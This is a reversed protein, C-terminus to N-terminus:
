EIEFFKFEIDDDVHGELFGLLKDIILKPNNADYQDIIVNGMENGTYKSYMVLNGAKKEKHISELLMKEGDTIRLLHIVVSLQEELSEEGAVEEILDFLEEETYGHALAERMKESLQFVEPRMMVGEELKGVAALAADEVEQATARMDMVMRDLENAIRVHDSMEAPRFKESM